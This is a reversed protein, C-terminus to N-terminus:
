ACVFDVSYHGILSNPRRFQRFTSGFTMWYRHASRYYGGRQFADLQLKRHRRQRLREVLSSNTSMRPENM